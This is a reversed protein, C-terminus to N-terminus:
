PEERPECGLLRRTTRVSERAREKRTEAANAAGVAICDGTVPPDGPLTAGWLSGAPSPPQVQPPPSSVAPVSPVCFQYPWKQLGPDSGETVTGHPSHRFPM